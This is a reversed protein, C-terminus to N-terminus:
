VLNIKDGITRRRRRRKNQYNYEFRQARKIEKPNIQTTHKKRGNNVM